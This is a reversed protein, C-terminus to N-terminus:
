VSVSSSSAFRSVPRRFLSPLGKLSPRVMAVLSTAAMSSDFDLSNWRTSLPRPIRCTPFFVAFCITSTYGDISASAAALSSSRSPTCPIPSFTARPMHFNRRVGSLTSTM